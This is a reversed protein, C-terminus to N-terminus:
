MLFSDLISQQKTIQNALDCMLGVKATMQVDTLEQNPLTNILADRLITIKSIIAQYVEQPIEYGRSMEGVIRDKIQQIIAKM